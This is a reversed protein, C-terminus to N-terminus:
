PQSLYRPLHRFLKSSQLMRLLYYSSTPLFIILSWGFQDPVELQFFTPFRLMMIASLGVSLIGLIAAPSNKFLSRVKWISIDTISWFVFLGFLMGILTSVCQAQGKAISQFADSNVLTSSNPIRLLAWGSIYYSFVYGTTMAIAGFIGALCSYGLVDRLFNELRKPKLWGFAIWITPLGVVAMTLITM